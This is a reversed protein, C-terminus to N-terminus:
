EQRSGEPEWTCTELTVEHTDDDWRVTALLRLLEGQPHIPEVHWTRTFTTPTFPPAVTDEGDAGVDPQDILQELKAQAIGIATTGDRALIIARGTIRMTTPALALAISAVSMSVLVEIMTLGRHSGKFARRNM